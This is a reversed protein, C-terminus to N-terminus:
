RKSKYLSNNIDAKLSEFDYIITVASSQMRISKVQTFKKKKERSTLIYVYGKLM